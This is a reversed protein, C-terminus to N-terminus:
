IKNKGHPKGELLTEKTISTWDNEDAFFPLIIGQESDWTGVKYLQKDGSNPDNEMANKFDRMEAEDNVNLHPAGWGIVNDHMAYISYKM